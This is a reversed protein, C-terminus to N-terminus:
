DRWLPRDWLALPILAMNKQFAKVGAKTLPGFFGTIPHNYVGERVLRNQLETVDDGRSGLGLNNSFNFKAAGLVQGVSVITPTAPVAAVVAPRFGAAIAGIPGPGGGGSGGSSSSLTSSQTYTAFSTFHKTWIVLDSGVDIKCDGDAVM